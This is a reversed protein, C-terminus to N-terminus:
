VSLLMSSLRVTYPWKLLDLNAGIFRIRYGQEDNQIFAKLGSVFQKVDQASEGLDNQVKDPTNGPIFSWYRQPTSRHRGLAFRELYFHRLNNTLVCGGESGLTERSVIRFRSQSYVKSFAARVLLISIELDEQNLCFPEIETGHCSQLAKAVETPSYCPDLSEVWEILTKSLEARFQM